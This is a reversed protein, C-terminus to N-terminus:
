IAALLINEGDPIQTVKNKILYTQIFFSYHLIINPQCRPEHSNLDSSAVLSSFWFFDFLSTMRYYVIGSHWTVIVM